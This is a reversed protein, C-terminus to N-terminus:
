VMGQEIRRLIDKEHQTFPELELQSRHYYRELESKFNTVYSDKLPLDVRNFVSRLEDDLSTCLKTYDIRTIQKGHLRLARKLGENYQIMNKEFAGLDGYRRKHSRWLTDLDKEIVFCPIFAPVKNLIVDLSKLYRPTKDCVQQPRGSSFVPSYRILKGYAEEWSNSNCIKEMNVKSVGWQKESVPEQMWEYWPHIDKFERPKDALLFGCEFGCSLTPDQTLLRSLLTTGSHEVGTIIVRLPHTAQTFKMQKRSTKLVQFTNQLAGILKRM